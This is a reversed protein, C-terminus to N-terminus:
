NAYGGDIYEGTKNSDYDWKDVVSTYLGLAGKYLVVFRKKM